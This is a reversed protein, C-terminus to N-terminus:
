ALIKKVYIVREYPRNNEPNRGNPDFAVKEFQLTRLRPFIVKEAVLTLARDFVAKTTPHIQDLKAPDVNLVRYNDIQYDISRM